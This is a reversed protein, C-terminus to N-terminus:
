KKAMVGVFEGYGAQEKFEPKYEFKYFPLGNALAGMPIINEKM